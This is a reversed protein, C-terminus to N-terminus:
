VGKRHHIRSSVMSKLELLLPDRTLFLYICYSIIGVSLGVALQISLSNIHIVSIHVAIGMIIGGILYKTNLIEKIGFPFYKRNVSLQIVLVTLEAISTSIAAGTAGLKPILVVNLLLNSVAGGTVSYILVKIKDMPYLIQMGMLNTISIFIIVPANLYLVPISDMFETGCFIVTIPTALIILGITMPIALALIVNLSKLIILKFETMKGAKLLHACHPLLVTSISTIINLGIHSIKTGASYFGVAEDGAMFGLMISNLQIYLSIILNLIFVQLSPKVHPVINLENWKILRLNIFKHLHIFNLLNNGVTSGVVILGYILLDSSNKVFVFLSIASLTRIIIGRITIFKFDEIGQYFWNVGISTFVISLSLIYFLASQEHIQPVFKALAWVAIYGILCLITSLIIIEVTIRDRKEIDDRYKAVEKVAYLPIGISTLLVIYSIISNLFNVAGIGEPLLVRAAYPFTIVPFIIGTVTNIGNLIINGKVSAM